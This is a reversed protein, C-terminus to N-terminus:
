RLESVTPGGQRCSAKQLIQPVQLDTKLKL